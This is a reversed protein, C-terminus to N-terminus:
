YVSIQGSGNCKPCTIDLKNQKIITNGRCLPCTRQADQYGGKGFDPGGDRMSDHAMNKFRSQLANDDSKVVTIRTTGTGDVRRQPIAIPQGGRGEVMTMEAYGDRTGPPLKDSLSNYDHSHLQQVPVGGANGGVSVVGRDLKSTPVAISKDIAPASVVPAPPAPAKVIIKPDNKEFSEHTDSKHQQAITLGNSESVYLGLAKAQAIVEDIKLKKDLYAARALKVTADEAHTDCIKVVVKTGNDITITLQTNLFEVADCFICQNM